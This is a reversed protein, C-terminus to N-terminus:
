RARYGDNAFGSRAASFGWTNWAPRLGFMANTFSPRGSRQRATCSRVFGATASRPTLRIRASRTDFLAAFVARRTSRFLHQIRVPVTSPALRASITTWSMYGDPLRHRPIKAFSGDRSYANGAAARLETLPCRDSPGRLARESGYKWQIVPAFHHRFLTGVNLCGDPPDRSHVDLLSYDTVVQCTRPNWGSRDPTASATTISHAANRIPPKIRKPVIEDTQTM